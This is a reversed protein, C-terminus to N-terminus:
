GLAQFDDRLAIVEGLQDLDDALRSPRRGRLEDENVPDDLRDATLHLHDLMQLSIQKV